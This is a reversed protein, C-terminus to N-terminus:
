SAGCQLRPTKVAAAANHFTSPTARPAPATYLLVPLAAAAAALSAIQESEAIHLPVSRSEAAPAHLKKYSLQSMKIILANTM